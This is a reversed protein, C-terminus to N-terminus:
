VPIEVSPRIAFGIAENLKHVSCKGWHTIRHKASNQVMAKAQAESAALAVGIHPDHNKEADKWVYLQLSAHDKM